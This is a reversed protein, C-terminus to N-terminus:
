VGAFRRLEVEPIRHSGNRVEVARLRGDRVLRWITVRSVDLAEAARTMTLLRLSPAENSQGALAGALRALEDPTASLIKGIIEEKSM